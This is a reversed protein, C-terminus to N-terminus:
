PGQFILLGQGWELPVINDVLQVPQIDSDEANMGEECYIGNEVNWELGLGKEEGDEVVEDGTKTNGGAVM